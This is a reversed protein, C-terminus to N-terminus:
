DVKLRLYEGKPEIRHVMGGTAEDWEHDSTVASTDAYFAFLTTDGLIPDSSNAQVYIFLAGSLTVLLQLVAWLYLRLMNVVALSAPPSVSYGSELSESAIGENLAAWSAAYSRTLTGIVMDDFTPWSPAVDFSEKEGFISATVLPMIRLAEGIMSGPSPSPVDNIKLQVIRDSSITCNNCNVVGATYSVWAFKLCREGQLYGTALKRGQYDSITCHGKWRFSAYPVYVLLRRESVVNHIRGAHYILYSTPVLAMQGKILPCFSSGTINLKPCIVGDVNYQPDKYEESDEELWEIKHVSFYPLAVSDIRTGVELENLQLIFRRITSNDSDRGWTLINRFKAHEVASELLVREHGAVMRNWRGYETHPIYVTDDSLRRHPHSSSEWTISGTLIPASFQVPLTLALIIWIIVFSSYNPSRPATQISPLMIGYSVMSRLDRHKLGHERMLIFACRWCLSGVWCATVLRLGALAFSLITTIDSQLPSYYVWPVETGNRLKVWPRRENFNFHRRQVYLRMFLFIGLLLLFHLLLPWVGVLWIHLSKRRSDTIKKPQYLAHPIDPPSPSSCPTKDAYNRTTLPSSSM